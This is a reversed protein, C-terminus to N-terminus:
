IRNLIDQITRLDRVLQDSWGWRDTPLLEKISFANFPTIRRQNEWVEEIRVQVVPFHEKLHQLQKQL